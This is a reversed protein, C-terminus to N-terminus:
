ETAKRVLRFRNSTRDLYYDGCELREQAFCEPREDSLTEGLERCVVAGERYYHFCLRGNEEYGHPRLGRGLTVANGQASFSGGNRGIRRARLLGSATTVLCCGGETRCVALRSCYANERMEAPAGLAATGDTLLIECLYVKGLRVYALLPTGDEATCVDLESIGTLLEAEDRVEGTLLDLKGIRCVGESLRVLGAEADPSEPIAFAGFREAGDLKLYPATLRDSQTNQQIVDIGERGGTLFFLGYRCEFSAMGIEREAESLGAGQVQLEYSHLRVGLDPFSIEVQMRSEGGPVGQCAASFVYAQKEGGVPLASRYFEIGDLSMAVTCDCRVEGTMVLRLTVSAACSRAASLILEPLTMKTAYFEPQDSLSICGTQVELVKRSLEAVRSELDDAKLYALKGYDM